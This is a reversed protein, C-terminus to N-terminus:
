NFDVKFNASTKLDHSYNFYITGDEGRLFLAHHPSKDFNFGDKGINGIKTTFNAPDRIENGIIRYRNMLLRDSGNGILLIEVTIETPLHTINVQIECYTSASQKDCEDRHYTGGFLGVDGQLAGNNLIERMKQDRDSGQNEELPAAGCSILLIATLSILFSRIM